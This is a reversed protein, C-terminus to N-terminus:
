ASQKPNELKNPYQFTYGVFGTHTQTHSLSKDFSQLVVLSSGIELGFQILHSLSQRDYM